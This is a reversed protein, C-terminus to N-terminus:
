NIVNHKAPPIKIKSATAMPIRSYLFCLFSKSFIILFLLYYKVAFLRDKQQMFAKISFRAYDFTKLLVLWHIQKTARVPAVIYRERTKCIRVWGSRIFRRGQPKIESRKMSKSILRRSNFSSGCNCWLITDALNNCLFLLM